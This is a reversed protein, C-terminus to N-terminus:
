GLTSLLPLSLLCKKKEKEGRWEEVELQNFYLSNIKVFGNQKLWSEIKEEPDFLPVLYRVYYITEFSSIYEEAEEFVPDSVVQVGESAYILWPLSLRSYYRYPWFSTQSPTLTAFPGEWSKNEPDEIHRVLGRWDERHFYPNFYYVGLSALSVLLAVLLLIFRNMKSRFQTISIALLLYFAPLVLLLRFPQYNPVFLSALWALLIPLFLWFVLNSVQSKLAKKLFLRGILWSYVLFLIGAVLAYLKKNFITIRGLTFKIFTLPPAKLFNLNVLKGWEPLSAIAEQGTKLQTFFMSLWPAFLLVPILCKLLQRYKKRFVLIVAQTALILFGYYDTYLLITTSLLYGVSIEKIFFYMSLSALFAAMSYMRAEQSYYIHFPATALLLAAIKSLAPRGPFLNKTIKYVVWVTAVGFLVSPMRLAIESPGFLRAWIWSLFHYLPPHFDGQLETFIASFPM